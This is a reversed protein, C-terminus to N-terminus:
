RLAHIPRNKERLYQLTTQRTVALIESLISLAIEQPTEAGIDLGAPAHISELFEMSVDPAKEVLENFLLDRRRAAGLVGLYALSQEKLALLYSLDLAFNHTMLVIATRHDFTKFALWDPGALQMECTGPFDEKSAGNQLSAIVEVEWGLQSTIQALQRADYSDGVIMLKMAPELQQRFVQYSASSLIPKGSFATSVQDFEIFSGFDGQADDEKIFYSTLDIARREKLRDSFQSFFLDDVVFPEILIYLVGECGLRYRGDYSIVKAKGTEFVSSVRRLVEKEVCGGSLAGVTKGHEAVLMRVGPRRYSSGDLAVLTALVCSRKEEHWHFAQKVIDRLEHMM